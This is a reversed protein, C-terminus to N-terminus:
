EKGYEEKLKKELKIIKELVDDGYCKVEWNYGRTNKIIKISDIQEHEEQEEIGASLEQKILKEM